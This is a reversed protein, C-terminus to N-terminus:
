KKALGTNHIWAIFFTPKFVSKAPRLSAGSGDSLHRQNGRLQRQAVPFIRNLLRLMNTCNKAASFFNRQKRLLRPMMQSQLIPDRRIFLGKAFRKPKQILLEPGFPQHQNV